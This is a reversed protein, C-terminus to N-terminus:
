DITEDDKRIVIKGEDLLKRFISMIHLHSEQAKSAPIKAHEITEKLEQAMRSSVRMYLYDWLENSYLKLAQGLKTLDVEKLFASMMKPSLYKLDELSYLKELIRQSLGADKSAVEKLIRDRELKTLLALARAMEDVGGQFKPM